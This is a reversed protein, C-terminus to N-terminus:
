EGVSREKEGIRYFALGGRLGRYLVLVNGSLVCISQKGVTQTHLVCVYTFGLWDVIFLM